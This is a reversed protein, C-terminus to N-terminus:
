LLTSGVSVSSILSSTTTFSSTTVATATATAAASTFILAYFYWVIFVVCSSLIGYLLYKRSILSKYRFRLLKFQQKFKIQQLRAWRQLKNKTPFYLPETSSIANQMFQKYLSEVPVQLLQKKKQYERIIRRKKNLKQQQQTQQQSKLQEQQNYYITSRIIPQKDLTDIFDKFSKMKQIPAKIENAKQIIDNAKKLQTEEKNMANNTSKSTSTSTSSMIVKKRNRKLMNKLKTRKKIKSKKRRISQKKLQLPLLIVDDDNNDNTVFTICNWRNNSNNIFNNIFQRSKISPYQQLIFCTIEYPIQNIACFSIIKIFMDMEPMLITSNNTYSINNNNGDQQIEFSINNNDYDYEDDIMDLIASIYDNDNNDHIQNVYDYTINYFLDITSQSLSNMLDDCMYSLINDNGHMMDNSNEYRPSPSPSLLKNNHRQYYLKATSTSRSASAGFHNNNANIISSRQNFYYRKQQFATVVNNNDYKDFSLKIINTGISCYYIMITFTITPTLSTSFM